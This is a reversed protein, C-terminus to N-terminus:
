VIELVVLYFRVITYVFIAIFGILNAICLLFGVLWIKPYNTRMKKSKFSIIIGAISIFLIPVLIILYNLGFIILPFLYGVYLFVAVCGLTLPVTVLGDKDLRMNDANKDVKKDDKIM